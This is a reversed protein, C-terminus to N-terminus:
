YPPVVKLFGLPLVYHPNQTVYILPSEAKNVFCTKDAPVVQLEGRSNDQPRASFVLCKFLYQTGDEDPQAYERHLSYGAQVSTNFGRGFSCRRTNSAALSTSLGHSVIGAAAQRSCGHWCVKVLPSLDDPQFNPELVLAHYFMHWCYPQVVISAESVAYGMPLGATLLAFREDAPHLAFSSYARLPRTTDFECADIWGPRRPESQVHWALLRYRSGAVTSLPPFTRVPESPYLYDRTESDADAPQQDIDTYASALVAPNPIEVCRVRFDPRLGTYHTLTRLCVAHQRTHGQFSVSHYVAVVPLTVNALADASRQVGLVLALVHNLAKQVHEYLNRETQSDSATSLMGDVCLPAFRWVLRGRSVPQQYAATPHLLNGDPQTLRVTLRQGSRKVVFSRSLQHFLSLLSPRPGAQRDCLLYLNQWVVEMWVKVLESVSVARGQFRDRQADLQKQLVVCTHEHCYFSAFPSLACAEVQYDVQTRVEAKFKLTLLVSGSVSTLVSLAKTHESPPDADRAYVVVPLDFLDTLHQCVWTPYASMLDSMCAIPEPWTM